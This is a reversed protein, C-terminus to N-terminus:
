NNLTNSMCNKVWSISSQKLKEQLDTFYKLADKNTVFEITDTRTLSNDPLSVFLKDKDALMLYEYHYQIAQTIQSDTPKIGKENNVYVPLKDKPVYKTYTNYYRGTIFFDDAELPKVVIYRRLAENLYFLYFEDTPNFLLQKYCLEICDEFKQEQLLINICEDVAQMKVKNFMTEDVQFYKTNITDTANAAKQTYNIREQSPPHSSYYIGIGRHFDKDKKRNDEITKFRKEVNIAALLNYKANITLDIGVKDADREMDKFGEYMNATSISSFIGGGYGAFMNGAKKHAENRASEMFRHYLDLHIYHGYEHGLVNAIKAENLANALFGVTIYAQGTGTMMANIDASRLIKINISDPNSGPIIKNFVQNVYNQAYGWNIYAEGNEVDSRLNNISLKIFNNCDEVKSFITDYKKHLQQKYLQYNPQSKKEDADTGFPLFGHQYNTQSFFLRFSFVFFITLLCGKKM